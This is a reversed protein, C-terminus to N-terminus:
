GCRKEGTQQESQRENERAREGTPDAYTDNLKQVLGEAEEIVRNMTDMVKPTLGAPASPLASHRIKMNHRLATLMRHRREPNKEENALRAAVASGAMARAKFHLWGGLGAVIGTVIVPKWLGSWIWSWWRASGGDAGSTAGWISLVIVALALAGLFVGDRLFVGRRWAARLSTLKAIESDRLELAIKKVAGVIRYAREVRVQTMRDTIDALDRDRKRQFRERLASNEIPAACDENYIRYFRGATLGAQAIARQWAGVVEEPNDERATLDIQNLIYLFKAADKRKVTRKVLHELTDRMAGPEPRRADFLVLVLDSLDIIYDTIRLTSTRQADADFGPSDILIMGRLKESPCTKLQLYTDVRMGEGPEVKELEESMKYFPFRPDADLASGPLSRAKGDSAYCIVTFKDDVAQSGTEQLSYGLYQNLFSSKGASYPGLVSILPWWAIYRAYTEDPGLLGIKRAASDLSQLSELAEVLLPNERKLHEKLRKLDKRPSTKREELPTGSLEDTEDLRKTKGVRLLAM